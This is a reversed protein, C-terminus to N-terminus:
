CSGGTEQRYRTEYVKGGGGLIFKWKSINQIICLYIESTTSFHFSVLCVCLFLLFLYLSTFLVFISRLLFILNFTLLYIFIVSVLNSFESPSFFFYRFNYGNTSPHHTPTQSAFMLAM